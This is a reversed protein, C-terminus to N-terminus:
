GATVEYLDEINYYTGALRIIEDPRITEIVEALRIFYSTDLGFEWVAKFSEAMAFPGDFMRVLEGSMYNRVVEMEEKEVPLTQLRRIESYIEEVAQARKNNDVDTSILKFGSLDLSSVSSHIGYTYGKNERINKMLRSGFYGGLLTNLFKLGPYDPHRKNITLSGIRVASQVAGSKEIHIKKGAAGKIVNEPEEIYIKKSHLTGFYKELIDITKEHIRGSVIITMKDPAYFKSHFDKLLSPNMYDFDKEQVQRGYPHHNGFVSEFFADMALNQVKEKNVMYWRFRKKMLLALEKEPFTSRFLMERTLGLVKDIFRNLFYVILSATDKEVVPNMFIGYYDLLRNLEESTYNESGETLMMNTTTALLPIDEKVIGARFVFEIRMVDETGTEILFVSVGNSLFIHKTPIHITASFPFLAPQIRQLANMKM